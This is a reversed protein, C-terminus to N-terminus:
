YFPENEISALSEQGPCSTLLYGHHAVRYGFPKKTCLTKLSFMKLAKIQREIFLVVFAKKINNINEKIFKFICKAIHENM